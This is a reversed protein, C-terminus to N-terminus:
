PEQRRWRSRCGRVSRRGRRGRGGRRACWGGCRRRRSCPRGGRVGAAVRCGSVGLEGPSEVVVDVEAGVLQAALLWRLVDPVARDAGRGAVAVECVGLPGLDGAADHVGRADGGVAVLPGASPDRYAVGVVVDVDHGGGDAGVSAAWAGVLVASPGLGLAAPDFGLEAQAAQLGAVECGRAGGGTGFAGLGLALALGHCCSLPQALPCVGDGGGHLGLGVVEGNQLGEADLDLRAEAGLAAVHDAVAEGCGAVGVADAFGDPVAARLEGGVEGGVAEAFAEGVLLYGVAGPERCIGGLRPPVGDGRYLRRM